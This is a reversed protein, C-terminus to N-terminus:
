FPSNYRYRIHWSSNIYIWSSANQAILDSIFSTIIVMISEWWRYLVRIIRIICLRFIHSVQSDKYLFIFIIIINSCTHFDIYWYKNFRYKIYCYFLVITKNQVIQTLHLMNLELIKWRCTTWKSLFSQYKETQCLNIIM